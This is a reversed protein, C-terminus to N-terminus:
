TLVHASDKTNINVKNNRLHIKVTIDEGDGITVDVQVDNNVLAGPVTPWSNKHM